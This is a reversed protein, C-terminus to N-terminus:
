PDEYCIPNIQYIYYKEFLPLVLNVMEPGSDIELGDWTLAITKKEVDGGYWM